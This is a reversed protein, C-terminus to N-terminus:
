TEKRLRFADAFTRVKDMPESYILSIVTVRREQYLTALDNIVRELEPTRPQYRYAREGSEIAALVGKVHLEMLQTATMDPTTYLERALAAAAWEEDKRARLFLLVELKAVSSINETIFQRIDDPLGNMRVARLPKLRPWAAPQSRAAVLCCVRQARLRHAVLPSGYGSTASAKQVFLL